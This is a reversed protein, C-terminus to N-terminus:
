VFSIAINITAIVIVVNAVASSSPSRLPVSSSICRNCLDCHHGVYESFSSSPSPSPSYRPIIVRTDVVTVVVVSGTVVVTLMADVIAIAIIAIISAKGCDCVQM